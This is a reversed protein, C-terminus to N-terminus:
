TRAAEAMKLLTKDSPNGLPPKGTQETIFARLQARTMGVFDPHINPGAKVEDDDDEDEGDDHEVEPKQPENQNPDHPDPQDNQEDEKEPKKPPMSALLKRDEQAIRLQVQLAEIELRQRMVTASHDSSALYEIAKNKLDRGGIGLNKLPQGDLEALMEVTYVSLARLEARKGETLFPVYDLPTGTMTQHQREKFQRYQRAYKEAYTLKVQEGTEEDVVWGCFATAPQVSFDKTGPIRLEVVELDNFIPRGMQQSRGKDEIAMNKFIPTVGVNRPQLSM